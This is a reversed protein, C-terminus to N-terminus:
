ARGGPEDQSSRNRLFFRLDELMGTIQSFAGTSLAIWLAISDPWTVVASITALGVWISVCWPCEMLYALKLHLAKRDDLRRMVADRLERSIEDATVLRTVRAVALAAILFSVGFWAWGAASVGFGDQM